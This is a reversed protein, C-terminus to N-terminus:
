VIVEFRTEQHNQRGRRRERRASEPDAEHERDQRAGDERVVFEKLQLGQGALNDRLSTEVEGLHEPRLRVVADGIGDRMQIRMARVLQDMVQQSNTGPLRAAFTGSVLEPAPEQLHGGSLTVPDFM